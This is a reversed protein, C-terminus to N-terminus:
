YHEHRNQTVDYFYQESTKYKSIKTINKTGFIEMNADTKLQM